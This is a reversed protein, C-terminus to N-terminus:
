KLTARLVLSLKYAVYYVNNTAQFIYYKNVTSIIYHTPLLLILAIPLGCGSIESTFIRIIPAFFLWAVDLLRDCLKRPVLSAMM